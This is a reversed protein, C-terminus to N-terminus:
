PHNLTNDCYRHFVNLWDQIASSDVSDEAPVLLSFDTSGRIFDDRSQYISVPPNGPHPAFRSPFASDGGGYAFDIPSGSPHPGAGSGTSSSLAPDNQPDSALVSVFRLVGVLADEHVQTTHPPCNTLSDENPEGEILFYDKGEESEHKILRTGDWRRKMEADYNGLNLPKDIGVEGSKKTPRVKMLDCLQANPKDEWEEMKEKFRRTYQERWDTHHTRTVDSLMKAVGERTDCTVPPRMCGKLSNCVDDVFSLAAPLRTLDDSRPINHQLAYDFTEVGYNDEPRKLEWWGKGREESRQLLVGKELFPDVYVVHSPGSSESLVVPVASTAEVHVAPAHHSSPSPACPEPDISIDKPKETGNFSSSRSHGSSTPTLAGPSSGTDSDRADEVSPSNYPAM